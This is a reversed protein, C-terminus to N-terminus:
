VSSQLLCGDPNIEAVKGVDAEEDSDNVHDVM